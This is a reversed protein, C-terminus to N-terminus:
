SARNLHSQTQAPARSAGFSMLLALLLILRFM